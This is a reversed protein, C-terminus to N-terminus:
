LKQAQGVTELYNKETKTRKVKWIKLLENSEGWALLSKRWRHGAILGNSANTLETVPIQGRANREPGKKPSRRESWVTGGHSGRCMLWLLKLNGTRCRGRGQCRQVNARGRWATIGAKASVECIKKKVGRPLLSQLGDTGHHQPAPSPFHELGMILDGRSGTVRSQSKSTHKEREWEESACSSWRPSWNSIRRRGPPLSPRAPFPHKGGGVGLWKPESLVGRPLPQAILKVQPCVKNLLVSPELSNWFPEKEEGGAPLKHPHQELRLVQGLEEFDFECTRPPSAWGLFTRKSKRMLPRM